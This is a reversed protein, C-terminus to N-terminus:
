PKRLNKMREEGVGIQISNIGDKELTKVQTVQCRDVQIVTCPVIQGWKNWFHTMGVKYGYLGVRRSERDTAATQKLQFQQNIKDEFSTFSKNVNTLGHRNTQAIAAYDFVKTQALNERGINKLETITMDALNANKKEAASGQAAAAKPPAVAFYRLQPMM